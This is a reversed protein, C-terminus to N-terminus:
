IMLHVEAQQVPAVEERVVGGRNLVGGLGQLWIRLGEVGCGLGQVRFGLGHLTVKERERKRERGRRRERERKRERGRGRETKRERDSGTGREKM